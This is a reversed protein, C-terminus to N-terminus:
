INKKRPHTTSAIVSFRKEGKNIFIEFVSRDIFINFKLAGPEITCSRTQGFEIAYQEGAQSRDVTILGNQTDALINLGHGDEDSFLLFEAQTDAAIDLELEYINNTKSKDTFPSGQDKRLSTIAEVPYQYLKGDKITLEKVLSLVGQYDFRDTPYSIDPLGLWSM